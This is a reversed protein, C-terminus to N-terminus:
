ATKDKGKNGRRDLQGDRSNAEAPKIIKEATKQRQALIAQRQLQDQIKRVLAIFTPAELGQLGARNLFNLLQNIEQQSLELKM